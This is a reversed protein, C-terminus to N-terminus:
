LLRFPPSVEVIVCDGCDGTGYRLNDTRNWAAAQKSMLTVEADLSRAVLFRNAAVAALYIGVIASM